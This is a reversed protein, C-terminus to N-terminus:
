GHITALPWACWESRLFHLPSSWLYPCIPLSRESVFSFPFLLKLWTDAGSFIDSAPESRSLWTLVKLRWSFVKVSACQFIKTVQIVLCMAASHFLFLLAIRFLIARINMMTDEGSLGLSLVWFWGDEGQLVIRCQTCYSDLLFNWGKWERSRQLFSYLKQDVLQPLILLLVLLAFLFFEILGKGEDTSRALVM